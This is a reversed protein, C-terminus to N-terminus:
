KQTLLLGVIIYITILKKLLVEVIYDQSTLNFKTNGINFTINPLTDVEDCDVQFYYDYIM